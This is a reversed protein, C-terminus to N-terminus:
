IHEIKAIRKFLEDNVSLVDKKDIQKIKAKVGQIIDITLSSVFDKIENDNMADIDFGIGLRRVKQALYTESSVIIPTDFYIAEYIKNPEAYRVNECSIDYTSLVMDLGSYIRYLDDPSVFEGHFFCNNYQLLERFMNEANDNTCKGYFHFEHQPFSECFVRCFHFISNYRICGVFGIRLKAINTDLKPIVPLNVINPNLKNPIVIVNDPIKYGFHYQLFGESRFASLCSHKIVYKDVREFLYKFFVNSMNTHVMDAEEFIYPKRSVLRFFMAIELGVLYYLCKESKTEALVKKIGQYLSKCRKIYISSNSIKSVPKITCLQTSNPFEKDRLFCYAYVDYGHMVFEDIRKLHNPNGSSNLIFVIKM